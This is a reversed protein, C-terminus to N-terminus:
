YKGYKHAARVMARANDLSLNAPYECGTALIYGGGAGMMEIHKRCEEEVEEPTATPLWTPPICGILTTMDGYKAKADALSACDDPVHLFSIAEPQMTEIQVDFYIGTGCNHIMVMCGQKHIHAALDKVLYGEFEMWMQKSMISQSAFLTDLMIAHVGTEILADCYEKLMETVVQVAGKVADPDDILDMYLDAQGRLMSTIGLPGFVFAVIPVDNGKAKVLKDCLRIHTSMRPATRPNVPQVKRYDEISKIMHNLHNPHAAENEPFVLEQGLDGAEVSLDTLTVIVDLGEQETIKMYAEACVDADTAWKYYNAGVLHRSVGNLLPYVPVRDPTKHQLTLAVREIPKM